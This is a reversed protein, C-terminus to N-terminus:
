SEQKFVENLLYIDVWETTLKWGTSTNLSISYVKKAPTLLPCLYNPLMFVEVKLIGIEKEEIRVEYDALENYEIRQLGPKGSWVPFEKDPYVRDQFLISSDVITEKPKRYLFEPYKRAAYGQVTGKIVQKNM